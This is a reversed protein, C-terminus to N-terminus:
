ALELELQIGRKLEAIQAKSWMVWQERDARIRLGSLTWSYTRDGKTFYYDMMESYIDKEKRDFTYGAKEMARIAEKVTLKNM